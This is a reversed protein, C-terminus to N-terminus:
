ANGIVIVILGLLGAIFRSVLSVVLVIVLVQASGLGFVYKKMSSLRKIFLELGINFM